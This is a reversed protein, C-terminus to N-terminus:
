FHKYSALVLYAIKLSKDKSNRRLCQFLRYKSEKLFYESGLRQHWISSLDKDM